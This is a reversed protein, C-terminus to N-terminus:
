TTTVQQCHSNSYTPLNYRVLSTFLKRKNDINLNRFRQLKTLHANAVNRITIHGKFSTSFIHLGLVKGTNTHETNHHPLDVTKHTGINIVQFKGENTKIKWNHEYNNIHTIARSTAHAHM